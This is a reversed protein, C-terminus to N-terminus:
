VALLHRALLDPDALFPSHGTDMSCVTDCPLNSLMMRQMEPTIARDRTCSVYVRPLRGFNDPTVRVPTVIPAVAQPVLRSKAWAIDEPSCDGYFADAIVAERVTARTGDESVVMNPPVLTDEASDAYDALSRGNEPLFATVYVLARIRDPRQEGAQTIVIGGMSHGVLVVPESQADLVECVRDAYAQLTVRETPTADDGHGPLDPAVVTHGQAELLPALKAWCWGGHWAGHILVYTSM